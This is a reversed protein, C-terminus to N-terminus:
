CIVNKFEKCRAKTQNCDRTLKNLSFKYKLKITGVLIDIKM